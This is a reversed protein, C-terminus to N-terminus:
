CTWVVHRALPKLLLPYAICVRDFCAGHLIKPAQVFTSGWPTNKKQGTESKRIESAFEEEYSKGSLISVAGPKAAKGATTTVTRLKAPDASEDAPSNEQQVPAAADDPGSKKKKRKKVGGLPEGGACICNSCRSHPKVFGVAGAQHLDECGALWGDM